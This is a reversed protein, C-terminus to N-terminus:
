EVGKILFFLLFLSAIGFIAIKSWGWVNFVGAFQAKLSVVLGIVFSVLLGLAIAKRAAAEKSKTALFLLVAFGLFSAGLLQLDVKGAETVDAGYFEEVGDPMLVFAAGFILGLIGIIIFLTNLKM